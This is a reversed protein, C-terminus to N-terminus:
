GVMSVNKASPDVPAQTEADTDASSRPMIGQWGELLTQLIEMATHIKEVDAEINAASLTDRAYDYLRALNEAIAGGHDFDLTSHLYHIIDLAKKIRESGRDKRSEGFHEAARRLNKIAGEYLMVVIKVPDATSIGIRQYAKFAKTKM